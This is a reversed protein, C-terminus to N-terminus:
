EGEILLTCETEELVQFVNICVRAAGKMERVPICGYTATDKSVTMEKITGPRHVNGAFSGNISLFLQIETKMESICSLLEEDSCTYGLYSSLVPQLRDKYVSFYNKCNQIKEHDYSLSIHLTQLSDPIQFAYTINGQYFPPIVTKFQYLEKM